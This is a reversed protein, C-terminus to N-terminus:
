CPKWVRTSVRTPCMPNRQMTSSRQTDHEAIGFDSGLATKGAGTGASADPADRFDSVLLARIELAEFFARRCRATDQQRCWRRARNARSSVRGIVFKRLWHCPSMLPSGTPLVVCFRDFNFKWDTDYPESPRQM